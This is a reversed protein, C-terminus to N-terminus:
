LPTTAMAGVPMTSQNSKPEVKKADLDEKALRSQVHLRM